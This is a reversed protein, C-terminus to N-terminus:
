FGDHPLSTRFYSRIDNNLLPENLSATRLSSSGQSRCAEIQIGIALESHESLRSDFLELAIVAQLGVFQQDQCV